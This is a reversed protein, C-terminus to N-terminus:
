VMKFELNKLLQKCMPDNRYDEDLVQIMQNFSPSLPQNLKAGLLLCVAGLQILDLTMTLTKGTQQSLYRDLLGLACFLTEHNYGRAKHLDCILAVVGERQKATIHLGYKTKRTEHTYDGVLRQRKFADQYSHQSFEPWFSAFKSKKDKLQEKVDEAPINLESLKILWRHRM